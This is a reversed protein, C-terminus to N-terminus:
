CPNMCCVSLRKDLEEPSSVNWTNQYSRGIPSSPDDAAPLTRSYRVGHEKLAKLYEPHNEKVFRYVLTSDILPTQGTGTTPPAQCYFFVYQPPNATQALEHHFPIPQDAPSENATFIIDQGAKVPIITRPAAGGIYPYSELKCDVLFQGFDEVDIPTGDSSQLLLAKHQDLLSVVDSPEWKGLDNWSLGESEISKGDNSKAELIPNWRLKM